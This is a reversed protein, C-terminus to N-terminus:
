AVSDDADHREAADVTTARGVLPPPSFVESEGLEERRREELERNYRRLAYAETLYGLIRRDVANDLVVLTEADAAAFLDLALRLTQQPLLFHTRDAVLDAAVPPLADPRPVASHVDHLDIVGAYRQHEDVLYLYKAAGVPHTAQAQEISLDKSIIPADRRM